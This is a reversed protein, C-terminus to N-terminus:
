CHVDPSIKLFLILYLIFALGSEIVLMEITYSKVVERRNKLVLAM